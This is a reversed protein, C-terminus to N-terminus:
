RTGCGSWVGNPSSSIFTFTRRPRTTSIDFVMSGASASPSFTPMTFNPASPAAPQHADHVPEHGGAAGRRPAERTGHTRPSAAATRGRCERAGTSRSRSERRSDVPPRAVNQGRDLRADDVESLAFSLPWGASHRGVHSSARPTQVNWKLRGIAVGVACARRARSSGADDRNAAAGAQGVNQATKARNEERVSGVLRAISQGGDDRRRVVTPARAPQPCFEVDNRRAINSVAERGQGVVLRLQRVKKLIAEAGALTQVPMRDAVQKQGREGIHRVVERLRNLDGRADDARMADHQRRGGLEDRQYGLEAVTADQAALGRDRGRTAWDLPQCEQGSRGRQEVRTISAM